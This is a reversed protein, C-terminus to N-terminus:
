GRLCYRRFSYASLARSIVRAAGIAAQRYEGFKQRVVRSSPGPDIRRACGPGLVAFGISTIGISLGQENISFGGSLTDAIIQRLSAPAVRATQPTVANLPVSLFEDVYSEETAAQIRVEPSPQDAFQV